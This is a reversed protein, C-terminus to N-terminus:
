DVSPVLADVRTILGRPAPPGRFPLGSLERRMCAAAEEHRPEVATAVISTPLLYGEPDITFSLAIADPPLLKGDPDRCRQVLPWYLQARAVKEVAPSAMEPKVDLKGVSVRPRAPDSPPDAAPAPAPPEPVGTDTGIATGGDDGTPRRVAAPVAALLERLAAPDASKLTAPAHVRVSSAGLADRSWSALGPAPAAADPRPPPAPDACAGLLSLLAALAAPRM